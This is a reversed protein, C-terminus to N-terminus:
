VLDVLPSKEDSATPAFAQAVEGTGSVNVVGDEPAVYVSEGRRLSTQAGSDARLWVEGGTCVIIRAGVAPLNVGVPEGRSVQTISLAFDEAGPAFIDTTPGAMEPSVRAVMSMGTELTEVLGRPDLHKSTLGARLVNDSTSMVELGMGKLHAHIVGTDLFAAEGPQLTLRNLLLAVILGPDHPHLSSIEVATAYARKVDIGQRVLDACKVAIYDFEAPEPPETLISEVLRVIGAFGPFEQLQASLKNTYPSDIPALVRFVEATSRFGVLTDFTTLAYIM